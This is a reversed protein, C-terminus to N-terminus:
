LIPRFPLIHCTHSHLSKGSLPYPCGERILPRGQSYPITSYPVDLIGFLSLIHTYIYIYIYICAYYLTYVYICICIYIYIYIYVRVRRITFMDSRSYWASTCFSRQRQCPSPLGTPGRVFVVLLLAFTDTIIITIIIIIILLYLITFM